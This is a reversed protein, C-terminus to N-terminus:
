KLRIPNQELRKGDKSPGTNMKALFGKGLDGKSGGWDEGTDWRPCQSGSWACSSGDVMEWSLGVMRNGCERKGAKSWCKKVSM